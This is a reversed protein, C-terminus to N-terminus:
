LRLGSPTPFSRQFLGNGYQFQLLRCGSRCYEPLSGPIRNRQLGAEFYLEGGGGGCRVWLPRKAGSPLIEISEVAALPLTQLNFFPLNSGAGIGYPAARRGNILSLTYQVGAGRLNLASAGPTFGFIQNDNYQVGNQSLTRLFDQIDVAGSTEIERQDLRIVINNPSEQLPPLRFGTVQITELEAAESSEQAQTIGLGVFLYFASFLNRFQIIKKLKRM